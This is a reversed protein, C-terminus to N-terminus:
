PGTKPQGTPPLPQNFGGGYLYACCDQAGHTLAPDATWGDFGLNWATSEPTDIMFPSSKPRGEAAARRGECLAIALKCNNRYVTGSM